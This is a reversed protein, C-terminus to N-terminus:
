DMQGSRGFFVDLRRRCLFLKKTSLDEHINEYKEVKLVECNLYMQLNVKINQHIKKIDKEVM